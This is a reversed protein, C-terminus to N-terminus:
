IMRSGPRHHISALDEGRGFTKGIRGDDYVLVARSIQSTQRRHLLDAEDFAIIPRSYQIMLHSTGALKCSGCSPPCESSAAQYAAYLVGLGDDRCSM